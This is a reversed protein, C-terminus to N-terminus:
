FIESSRESLDAAPVELIEVIHDRIHIGIRNNQQMFSLSDEAVVVDFGERPEFFKCVM